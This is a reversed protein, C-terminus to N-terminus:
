GIVQASSQACSRRLLSTKKTRGVAIKTMFECITSLNYSHKWLVHDGARWEPLSFVRGVVDHDDSWSQYVRYGTQGM